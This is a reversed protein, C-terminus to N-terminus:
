ADYSPRFAQDSAWAHIREILDAQATARDILERIDQTEIRSDSEAVRHLTLWGMRKGNVGMMLAELEVLSSLPSRRLLRGNLKLRGGVDAATAFAKRWHEVRVDLRGMLTVLASLDAAIDDSLEALDGGFESRRHAKAIRRALAVGGNAGAYHDNLYIHLFTSSSTM